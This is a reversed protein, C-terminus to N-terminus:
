FMWSFLLGESGRRGKGDGDDDGGDKERYHVLVLFRKM